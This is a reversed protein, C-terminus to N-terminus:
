AMVFRYAGLRAGPKGAELASRLRPWGVYGEWLSMDVAFLGIFAFDLSDPM